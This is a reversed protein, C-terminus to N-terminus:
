EYDRLKKVFSLKVKDAFKIDATILDCGKESALVAYIADYVTVSYKKSFDIIQNVSNFDIPIIKISYKQFAVINDKIENASLKGKTVWANALEYLILDPVIITQTKKLHRKLIEISLDRNEEEKAFWKYAISADVIVM